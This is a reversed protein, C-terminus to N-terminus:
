FFFFLFIFFVTPQERHIHFDLTYLLTALHPVPTGPCNYEGSVTCGKMQTWSLLFFQGTREAAQSHHNEHLCTPWM